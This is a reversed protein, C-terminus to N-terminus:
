KWEQKRPRMGEWLMENIQAPCKSSQFVLGCALISWSWRLLSYKKSNLQLLSSEAKSNRVLSQCCRLEMPQVTAECRLLGQTGARCQIVSPVTACRCGCRQLPAPLSMLLPSGDKALYCTQPKLGPQSVPWGAKPTPSRCDSHYIPPPCARQTRHNWSILVM